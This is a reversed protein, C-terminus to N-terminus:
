AGKEPPTPVLQDRREADLNRKAQVIQPDPQTAAEGESQDREHSAAVHRVAPRDGV